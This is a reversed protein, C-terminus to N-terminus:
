RMEISTGNYQKIFIEVDGVDVSSGQRWPPKVYEGFRGDDSCRVKVSAWFWSPFILPFTLTKLDSDRHLVVWMLSDVFEELYNYEDLFPRQIPIGYFHTLPHQRESAVVSSTCIGSFAHIVDTKISLQRQYYEVLRDQAGSLNKSAGPAPFTLFRACPSSHPTAVSTEAGELHCSQECQFYMQSETFVLRRRSLLM